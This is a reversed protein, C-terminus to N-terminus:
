RLPASSEKTVAGNDFGIAFVDLDDPDVIEGRHFGIRMQQAEIGHVTAKGAHDFDRGIRDVDAVALDLHGCVFSGAVKGHFSSPTSMASSHVPMNVDFSFARAWREAPAWRTIM